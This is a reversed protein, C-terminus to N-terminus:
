HHLTSERRHSPAAAGVNGRVADYCECAWGELGRRNLITLQGHRQRIYGADQLALAAASVRKRDAGLMHGIFEQTLAITDSRVRDHSMLLWRCLRQRATHYRNCAGSQAMQALVYHLHEMVADQLSSDRRFQSVFFDARVRWVDAAIQVVIQYPATNVRLLIPLGVVGDNGIMAVEAASGTGTLGLLSIVGDLPFFAHRMTDGPEYLIKGSPLGVRELHPELRRREEESCAGLIRNTAAM